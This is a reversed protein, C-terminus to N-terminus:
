ELGGTYNTDVKYKETLPRLKAGANLTEAMFAARNENMAAETKSDPQTILYYRLDLAEAGFTAATKVHQVVEILDSDPLDGLNVRAWKNAVARLERAAPEYSNYKTRADAQSAAILDDYKGMSSIDKYLDKVVSHAKAEDSLAWIPAGDIRLQTLSGIATLVVVSTMISVAVVKSRGPVYSLYASYLLSGALVTAFLAKYLWGDSKTNPLLYSFGYVFCLTAGVCSAYFKFTKTRMQPKQANHPTIKRLVDKQHMNNSDHRNM